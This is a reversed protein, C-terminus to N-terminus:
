KGAITTRIKEDQKESIKLQRSFSSCPICLEFKQFFRGVTMEREDTVELQEM